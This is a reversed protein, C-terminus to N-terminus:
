ILAQGVGSTGASFTDEDVYTAQFTFTQVALGRKTMRFDTGTLRCNRIRALVGSEGNISKQLIEMDFGNPVHLKSPDFSQDVRAKGGFSNGGLSAAIKNLTGSDPGWSGAGNGKNSVSNPVKAGNKELFEKLKKTYRIITFSGTIDYSQPDQSQPEFMGLVHQSTHKVRISYAVDTCFALTIGNIRIKASAGTIFFPIQGAM